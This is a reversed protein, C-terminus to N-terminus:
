TSEVTVKQVTQKTAQKNTQKNTQKYGGSCDEAIQRSDGNDIV